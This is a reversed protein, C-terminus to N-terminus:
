KELANSPSPTSKNGFVALTKLTGSAAFGLAIGEAVDVEPYYNTLGFLAGVAASCLITLVVWWDKARARSILETVGVIVAVLVLYQTVDLEM